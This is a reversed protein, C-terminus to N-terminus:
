EGLIYEVAKQAKNAAKVIMKENDKLKDSWGKIYSATNKITKDLEMNCESLLMSSGIEAVLEEFSYNENGFAVKDENKFRNLRTKYGTSHILEHFLTGYYEEKTDFQSKKPCVLKDKAHNYYARSSMKFEIEPKDEYNNLIEEAKEVPKIEKNELKSELGKVDDIHFVNYYRILPIEKVKEEKKGNENKEEEKVEILKWFTIKNAKSGKKISGDLEQIQNYTLYEGPKKLLLLNIGHYNRRSKYNCKKTFWPKKWPIVGKEMEELIWQTVYCYVKSM